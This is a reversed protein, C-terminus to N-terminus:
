KKKTKKPKEAPAEAAEPAEKAAFTEEIVLGGFEVYKAKVEEETAEPGVAAIARQLKVKNAAFTYM